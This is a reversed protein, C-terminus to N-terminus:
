FNHSAEIMVEVEPGCNYPPKQVVTIREKLVTPVPVCVCGCSLLCVLMLAKKM